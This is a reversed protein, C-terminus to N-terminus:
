YGSKRGELKPTSLSHQVQAIREGTENWDSLINLFDLRRIHLDKQDMLRVHESFQAKGEDSEVDISLQTYSQLFKIKGAHELREKVESDLRELDSIRKGIWEREASIEDMRLRIDREFKTELKRTPTHLKVDRQDCGQFNM